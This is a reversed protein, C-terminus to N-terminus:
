WPTLRFAITRHRETAGDKWARFRGQYHFRPVVKVVVVFRHRFHQSNKSFIEDFTM